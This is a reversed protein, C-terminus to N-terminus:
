MQLFMDCPDRGRPLNLEAVAILRWKVSEDVESISKM